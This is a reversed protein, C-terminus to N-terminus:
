FPMLVKSSAKIEYVLKLTQTARAGLSVEMRAFGDQDIQWGTADIIAIEVDDIESVPIRETVVARRSEGSLNSLYVRVTRRLRQAGLIATDREEDQARRVRVGDDAGFGLEFPEGSGVYGVKSRGVLSKGRAVRVPGALLPGGTSLTLTARLHAATAIEPFLVRDIKAPLTRRSVEVRLPRGNSALSVRHSPELTLPEGGDEVGPMEDLARAGRELGALVIAQDRAEVRVQRREQDTKKRALLVDDAIVPPTASQAPRATSFRARVSSWDEGTRQWATAWTVIEVADGGEPTQVLRTLHEPRWLACPVRYKIEVEISRAEAETAQGEIQVEVVAEFRPNERSGEHLRENARELEDTAHMKERRAEAADVSAAALDRELAELASRWANLVDPKAAGKPVVAVAAAWKALLDSARAEARGAREIARGSAEVGKRARRAEDRLADIAERGLAAERHARWLVRASLVRAGSGVVRAQVSREDVFPSVGGVAIWSTGAPATATATRVVEARDEFLTVQGARSPVAKLDEGEALGAQGARTM